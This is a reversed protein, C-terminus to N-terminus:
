PTTLEPSTLSLAELSAVGSEARWNYWARRLKAPQGLSLLKSHRNQLDNEDASAKDAAFYDYAGRLLAAHRELERTVPETYCHTWRFWNADHAASYAKPAGANPM